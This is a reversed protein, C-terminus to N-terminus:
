FSFSNLKNRLTRVSIGLAKAAQTKNNQYCALTKLIHCKQIESLTHQANSVASASTCQLSLHRTFIISHKNIVVAREIVNALERINGPWRYNVLAEEAEKALRKVARQNKHAAKAIFHNALPLIDEQRERLPPIKLPIVNLRYFLDERFLKEQIAEQIDRNTTSIIRVDVKLSKTGGLREYEMEQVVRLLKAQLALPIESIEDLLLTGKHALEFRGPKQQYAGTFAGKEYGFFESEILADPVAACNVKVLREKSRSSNEHIFQAIEEKGTGSEGSIFVSSQSNAICKVEEIIRKMASSQVIFNKYGPNKQLALKIKEENLPKELHEYIDFGKHEVLKEMRRTSCLILPCCGFRESFKRISALDHTDLDIMIADPLRLELAHLLSNINPFPIMEITSVAISLNGLLYIRGM